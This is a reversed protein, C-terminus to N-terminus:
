EPIEIEGGSWVVPLPSQPISVAIYEYLYDGISYGGYEPIVVPNLRVEIKNDEWMVVEKVPNDSIPSRGFFTAVLMQTSLDCPPLTESESPPYEFTQKFAKNTYSSWEEQTRIVVQTVNTLVYFLSVEQFSLHTINSNSDANEGQASSEERNETTYAAEQQSDEYASTNGSDRGLLPDECGALFLALLLVGSLLFTGAFTKGSGVIQELHKMRGYM